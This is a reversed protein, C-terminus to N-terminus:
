SMEAECDLGPSLTAHGNVHCGIKVPAVAVVLTADRFGGCWNGDWNVWNGGGVHGPVRSFKGLEDRFSSCFHFFAFFFCATIMIQHLWVRVGAARSVLWPCDTEWVRKRVKEGGNWMGATPKSGFVSIM